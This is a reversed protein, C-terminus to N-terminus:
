NNVRKRYHDQSVEKRWRALPQGAFGRGLTVAAGEAEQGLAPNRIGSVQDVLAGQACTYQIVVLETYAKKQVAPNQKWEKPYLCFRSRVMKTELPQLVCCISKDESSVSPTVNWPVASVACLQCHISEAPLHTM